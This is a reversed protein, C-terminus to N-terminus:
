KEDERGWQHIPYSSVSLNFQDAADQKAVWREIRARAKKAAAQTYPGYVTDSGDYNALVVIWRRVNAGITM